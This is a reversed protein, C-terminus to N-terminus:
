KTNDGFEKSFNEIILTYALIDPWVAVDRLQFKFMFTLELVTGRRLLGLLKAYGRKGSWVRKSQGGEALCIGQM